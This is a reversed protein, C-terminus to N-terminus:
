SGLERFLAPWFVATVGLVASVSHATHAGLVLLGQGKPAPWSNSPRFMVPRPVPNSCNLIYYMSLYHVQVVVCKKKKNRVSCVFVM